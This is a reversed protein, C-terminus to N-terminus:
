GSGFILVDCDTQSGKNELSFFFQLLNLTSMARLILMESTSIVISLGIIDRLALLLQSINCDDDDQIFGSSSM